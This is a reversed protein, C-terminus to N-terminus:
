STPHTHLLSQQQQALVIRSRIRNVLVILLCSSHFLLLSLLVEREQYGSQISTLIHPMRVCHFLPISLVIVFGLHSPMIVLADSIWRFDICKVLLEPEMDTLLRWLPKGERKAWLDWLANIVAGTAMHIAGKEPGIQTIGHWVTHINVTLIREHTCSHTRMYM